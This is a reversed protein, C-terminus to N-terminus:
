KKQDMLEKMFRALTKGIHQPQTKLLNATNKLIIPETDKSEEKSILKFDDKSDIRNKKVVQKWKNFLEESRAPVQNIKCDLIRAAEQLIDSERGIENLAANGATFEIRVMGDQIKSTKIIKIIKAEGTLHLHTGGCAETDFDPISIIRLVKGPVAGGQYLTFGYEKEALDRRMLNSYVPLNQAIIQNALKEIKKVEEDSLSDYHTIDLRAKELGKHAGAQWIHNGLIRKASGNIIHTATHHQALQLRRPYDIDGHVIDGKKIKPADELVHVVHGGQKYVDIVKHGELTGKDHIQGGSTPYFATRDLIVKNGIVKQVAGTFKVLSFDKYYLIETEQVDELNLKEKKEPEPAEEKKLESVKGYFDEPYTLKKGEKKAQDAIMEPSIGQSTYLELYKKESIKEDKKLLNVIIQKSKKKTEAYKRKEVDLVRKVTDINEILEPFLPKLYEAHWEAIDNMSVNWEYKDIFDMARRVIVRLNYGGGVNNPLAGDSIAFLASRTHEAVSYLAALPLIKEKLEEVDISIKEAVLKWTKEIDDVEDINLYSSYPLFKKMLTGEPRIGTIDYLKKSVTPFTTEYSTSTGKTFWANREHGMGMDLVKLPLEKPGSPTQEFLMYVQNGLELGRSFYEMCPGFNGGGAWADEHFTIEKNPLGLGDKLWLHIHSFVKNQDWENKPVFMHQGIMIFGTYHAGTIGVNDIDNFRLCFQPVILPNAPPDVAGSVVHPQFDYISAGVWYQDDRWRAVVPYRKIETYGLKTFFKSFEKWVQIYDMEKKAPSNGIFRFGGSCSPDGCLKQDKNVTWFYTGCKCQKRMFGEKKLHAVAYYNEPNESAKKKFETKIQKDTKM